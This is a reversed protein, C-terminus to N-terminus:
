STEPVNACGFQEFGSQWIPTILSVKTKLSVYFINQCCTTSKYKTLISMLSIMELTEQM